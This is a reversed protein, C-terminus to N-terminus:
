GETVSPIAIILTHSHSTKPSLKLKKREIARARRKEM